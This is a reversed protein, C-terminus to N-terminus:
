TTGGDTPRGLWFAGAENGAVVGTMESVGGGSGVAGDFSAGGEVIFSFETGLRACSRRSLEAASALWGATALAHPSNAVAGVRRSVGASSASVSSAALVERMYVSDSSAALVVRMYEGDLSSAALVDRIAVGDVGGSSCWGQYRVPAVTGGGDIRGAASLAGSTRLAGLGRTRLITALTIPPHRNM